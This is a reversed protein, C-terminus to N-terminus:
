RSERNTFSLLGGAVVIVVAVFSVLLGTGLDAVAGVRVGLRTSRDTVDAIDVACVAAAAAGAVLAGM